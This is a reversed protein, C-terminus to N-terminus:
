LKEYEDKDINAGVMVNLNHGKWSGNYNFYMNAVHNYYHSNETEIYTSTNIPGHAFDEGFLSWTNM